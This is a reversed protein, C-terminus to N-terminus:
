PWFVRCANGGMVAAVEATSLGAAALCLRGAAQAAALSQAVGLYPFDSGWFLRDPGVAHVAERVWDWTGAFPWPEGTMGGLASVKVFVNPCAALRRLAITWDATDALEPCGLHDILVRVEGYHEAAALLGTLQAPAALVSVSLERSRALGWLEAAGPGFWDRDPWVLASLRIGGVSPDETAARWAQDAAQASSPLGLLVTTFRGPNSAAARLLYRHDTGLRSPQILVAREIGAADLQAVARGVVPVVEGRRRPRGRARTDSAAAWVHVHADVVTM